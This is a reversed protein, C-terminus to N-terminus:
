KSGQDCKRHRKKWNGFEGGICDTKRQGRHLTILIHSVSLSWSSWMCQSVDHHSSTAICYQTNVLERKSWHRSTVNPLMKTVLYWALPIVENWWKCVKTRHLQIAIHFARWCSDEVLYVQCLFVCCRSRLLQIVFYWLMVKFAHSIDVERTESQM